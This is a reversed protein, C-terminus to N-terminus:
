GTRTGRRDRRQAAPFLVERELYKRLHITHPDMRGPATALVQVVADVRLQLKGRATRRWRGAHRAAIIDEADRTRLARQLDAAAVWVHRGDDEIALGINGFSHHKGEVGQWHALRRLYLLRDLAAVGLSPVAILVLAIGVGAGVSLAAWLGGSALQVAAGAAAALVGALIARHLRGSM